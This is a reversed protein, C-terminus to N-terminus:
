DKRRQYEAGDEIYGVIRDVYERSTFYGFSNHGFNKEVHYAVKAGASELDRAIREAQEPPANVDYEAVILSILFSDDLFDYDITHSTRIGNAYDDISILEQFKDEVGNQFMYYLTNMPGAVMEKPMM